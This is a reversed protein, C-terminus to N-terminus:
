RRRWPGLCTVETFTTDHLRCAVLNGARESSAASEAVLEQLAKQVTRVSLGLLRAAEQASARSLLALARLVREGIPLTCRVDPLVIPARLDLTIGLDDGRVIQGVDALRARM